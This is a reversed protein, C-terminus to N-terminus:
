RFWTAERKQARRGRVWEVLAASAYGPPGVPFRPVGAPLLDRWAAAAAGGVLVLGDARPLFRLCSPKVETLAENFVALYLDPELWELVRNSEIIWDGGWDPLARLAAVVQRIQEPGAAALYARRAGARLYRGADTEDAAAQASVLRGAEPAAGHAHGSLKVATWAAEPTARILAAIVATKGAGRGQGGVVLLM